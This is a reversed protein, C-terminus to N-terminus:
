RIPNPLKDPGRLQAMTMRNAQDIISLFARESWGLGVKEARPAYTEFPRPAHYRVTVLRDGGLIFAVPGTIPTIGDERSFGPVLVTMVDFAGERYLRASIEIEELDDLTPVEPVLPAAIALEAPDPRYLDLWVSQAPDSPVLKGHDARYAFLM